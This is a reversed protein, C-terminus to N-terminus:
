FDRFSVVPRGAACREPGRPDGIPPIHYFARIAEAKRRLGLEALRATRWDKRNWLDWTPTARFTIGWVKRDEQGLDRWQVRSQFVAPWVSWYDGVVHTCGDAVLRRADAAGPGRELAAHAVAVSPPGYCLFALPLLAALAAANARRVWTKSKGELLLGFLLAPGATATALLTMALFRIRFGNQYVWGTTGLILLEALATGLLCLAQARVGPGEGALPRPSLGGVLSALLLLCIGGVLGPGLSEGVRRALTAWAELWITLPAPGLNTAEGYPSFRSVLLTVAFLICALAFPLIAPDHRLERWRPWFAPCAAGPELGLLKRLWLLPVLWFLIVPAVWFALAWLAYAALTGRRGPRRDLLLVGGLALSIAQFYPQMQQFNHAALDKGVLFLGLTLAGVAPWWPRRVVTRALLFFSLFLAFLRVAVQVLLNVFPDRVPLALLPVIMGFRNQEWYFPTWRDLSMLIPILSDSNHFAHIPSLDGWVALLATLALVAASSRSLAPRSFV